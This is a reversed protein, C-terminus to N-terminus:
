TPPLRGVIIDHRLQQTRHQMSFVLWQKRSFWFRIFESVLALCFNNGTIKNRLIHFLRKRENYVYLCWPLLVNDMVATCDDACLGVRVGVKGILSCESMTEVEAADSGNVDEM